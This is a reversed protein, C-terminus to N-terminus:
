KDIHSAFKDRESKIFTEGGGLQGFLEKAVGRLGLLPNASASRDIGAALVEYTITETTSQGSRPGSRSVIRLRNESLLKKSKLAQCVLPVRNDLALAKHVKGANVTVTKEGRRIAPKLYTESVHKRIANSISKSVASKM